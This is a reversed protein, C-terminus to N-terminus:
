GCGTTPSAARAGSACTTRRSGAAPSRARSSPSSRRRRPAGPADPRAGPQPGDTTIWAAPTRAARRRAALTELAAVFADHVAEEALDFDGLVRILTALVRGSEERFAREVVDRRPSPAAPILRRGGAGALDGADRCRRIPRVEVSGYARGPCRAAADLATDLDPATSRHLVRRPGGEDRRVARRHDARRGDRVRVTTAATSPALPDGGVYIGTDIMWQTYANWPEMDACRPAGRGAGDRARLHPAHLADPDRRRPRAPPPVARAAVRPARPTKQQCSSRPRGPDVGHAMKRSNAGAPFLAPRAIPSAVGRPRRLAVLSRSPSAPRRSDRGRAQDEWAHARRSTRSQFPSCRARTAAARRGPSRPVHERSPPRSWAVLAASPAAPGRSAYSDSWAHAPPDAVVDEAPHPM